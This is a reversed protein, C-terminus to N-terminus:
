AAKGLLLSVWLALACLTEPKPSSVFRRPRRRTTGIISQLVRTERTCLYISAHLFTEAKSRNRYFHQSEVTCVCHGRDRYAIRFIPRDAIPFRVDSLPTLFRRSLKTSPTIIEVLNRSFFFFLLDASIVMQERYRTCFM